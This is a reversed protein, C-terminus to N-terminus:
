VRKRLHVAASRKLLRSLTRLQTSGFRNEQTLGADTPNEEDM